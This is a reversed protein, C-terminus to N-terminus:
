KLTANLGITITRVQPLTYFDIGQAATSGDLTSVEPDSGTYKTFTLLNTGSLYFRVRDLKIRETLRPSLTYGIGLNKLRLYSADEIFRSSHFNNPNEEDATSVRYIPVDTIDGPKQWRRLAYTSQNTTMDQGSNVLSAKTLNLVDNGVSFQFFINLDFRGYVFRNTIGGIFDPVASGIIDTDDVNIEGDNNLDKYMANGTAPDVGLFRLGTFTGLPYGEKIINTATTGEASYGANPSADEALYLVENNNKSINLDTTWKLAKDINVATIGLEIGQNLVNGINGWNSGFGTTFPLPQAFLLDSTKNRYSDFFIQIRGEYLSADVGINIERTSEWSLYNNELNDPVIGSSGNYTAGSWTGMFRFDPIGQNGTYGFSGRLKLDNIIVSKFFSEESIRWAGSLAPFYGVRNNEGFRSSADARFSLAVLYKDKYDYKAEALGSLLGSQVKFSSGNDVIGASTIYTFDDSPFLRGQVSGTEYPSYVVESGIFATLHHDPLIEKSFTLIGNATITTATSAIFVGYGRGGVSPLYGGIATQSNEYQDETVDNYDVGAMAKFNWNDNFKYNATINGLIKVTTADFRPLLAQAVPNFNPFGAYLPSSPGVLNGQEDYPVDYPLSKLAGSYVGDLFNDGKVRQNFSRSLTIGTGVKLKPTFKRDINITTSMRQFRNNLQVGQEDRYNASMYFTTNEDGGSASLQYQELVGRRLVEDQWDTSVADTVGPILGAADPNLGANTYAERQLELLQKSNLLDLRKVPDIIGRQVDFNIRTIGNKGRKTTILVVGNAGRSGFLAKASADKLIQISEIDNPSILSLANDDQGGFDRLSLTGTEVAVGDVVFLPRNSANISTSGRIRVSIGGGPTGSSQTVQVGPAQGQLAQDIGTLAIEKFDNAGISTVSGTIERKEVSSYGMVVIEELEKSEEQLIVNLTAQNQYLVELTKYGVFSFILTQGDSAEVAFHGTVDTIVGNSTGKVVVNVGPLGDPETASTVRGTVTSQAVATSLSVFLIFLSLLFRVM